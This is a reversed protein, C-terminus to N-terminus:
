TKIRLNRRFVFFRRNFIEKGFSFALTGLTYYSKLCILFSVLYRILLDELSKAYKGFITKRKDLFRNHPSKTQM